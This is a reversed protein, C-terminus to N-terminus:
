NYKHQQLDSHCQIIQAEKSKLGRATLLKQSVWVISSFCQSSQYPLLPTRM